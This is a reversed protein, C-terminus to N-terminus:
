YRPQGYRQIGIAAGDAEPAHEVRPFPLAFFHAKLTMPIKLHGRILPGRM